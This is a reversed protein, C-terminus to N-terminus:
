AALATTFGMSLDFDVIRLNSITWNQNTGGNFQLFTELNVSPLDGPGQITAAGLSDATLTVNNLGAPVDVTYDDGTHGTGTM